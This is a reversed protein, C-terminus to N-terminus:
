AAGIHLCPFWDGARHAAPDPHRVFEQTARHGQSALSSEVPDDRIHFKGWRIAAQSVRNITIPCFKAALDLLDALKREIIEDAEVCRCIQIKLFDGELRCVHFIPISEIEM